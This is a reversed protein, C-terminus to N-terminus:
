LYLNYFLSCFIIGMIIKAATKKASNNPYRKTISVYRPKRTRSTKLEKIISLIENYVLLTAPIIICLILGPMTKIFLSLYGVIPVSFLVKGIISNPTVTESDVVPNADGKVTYVPTGTVSNKISFIRHTVPDAFGARHFTIVDGIKYSTSKNDIVLSGIKIKPQM